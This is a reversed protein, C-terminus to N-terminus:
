ITLGKQAALNYVDVNRQTQRKEIECCKPCGQIKERPWNMRARKYALQYNEFYGILMQEAFIPLDECCSTANHILYVGSVLPQEDIIFKLMM